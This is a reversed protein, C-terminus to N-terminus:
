CTQVIWLFRIRGVAQSLMGKDYFQLAYTLCLIVLLKLDTKRVVRKEEAATWELPGDYAAFVKMAEDDHLTDVQVVKELDAADDHTSVQQLDLDRGELHNATTKEM